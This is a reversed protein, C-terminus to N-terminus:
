CIVKLMHNKVINLEEPTLIHVPAHAGMGGTNPGFNNDHLKKYDQVQPMLEIDYGNCFAMVSVEEGYLREEIIVSNGANGFKKNIFIDKCTDLVEDINDPLFVGKGDALGDVKIVYKSSEPIINNNNNNSKQEDIKQLHSCLFEYESDNSCIFNSTPIQYDKMFNKSFVKSGEIQAGYKDPGLCQINYNSKQVILDYIGNVLYKENGIIVLKTHNYEDLCFKAINDIDHLDTNKKFEITARIVRNPDSCIMGDNGPFVYIKNIKPSKLLSDIIAHERAGSGLVLVNNQM